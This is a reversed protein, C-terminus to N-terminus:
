EILVLAANREAWGGQPDQVVELVYVTTESIDSIKGYNQGIYNGIRVRHVRNDKSTVIAWREGARELHGVFQLTDLPYSELTERERTVDPRLADDNQGAIEEERKGADFPDRAELSAYEFIEYAKFVPLPEVRTGQMGKVKEIYQLLDDNSSLCAAGM